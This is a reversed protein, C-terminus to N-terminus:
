APVAVTEAQAVLPLSFIFCNGLGDRTPEVWIQGHHAEVALRCFALGLGFGRIEPKGRTTHTFREFIRERDEPPIADGTNIVHVRVHKEQVRAAITVRGNGISHKVANDILNALVRDIKRPDLQIPPLEAPIASYITVSDRKLHLSMRDVTKKILSSLDTLVMELQSEGTEMQAVDLLSNVLRKMHECNLTALELIEQNAELVDEPLMMELMNIAGLFLSLPNRLDHIILDITEQRLRELELLQEKETQLRSIQRAFQREAALNSDHVENATRLRTSLISMISMGLPPNDGLVQQFDQHSIKLLRLDELALVSASRPQDELLAMEGFIEGIGQHALITPTDTKGKFVVVQGSRIIYMARGIDGERFVLEGQVYDEKTILRDLSERRTAALLKLIASDLQAVAPQTPLFPILKKQSLIQSVM